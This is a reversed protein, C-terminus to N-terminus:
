DDLDKSRIVMDPSDLVKIQVNDTFVMVDGESIIECFKGNYVFLNKDGGTVCIAANIAKSFNELGPGVHKMNCMIDGLSVDVALVSVVKLEPVLVILFTTPILPNYHGVVREYRHVVQAAADRIMAEKADSSYSLYQFYPSEPIDITGGDFRCIEFTMMANSYLVGPENEKMFLTPCARMAYEINTSSIRHTCLVVPRGFFESGSTFFPVTVFLDTNNLHNFMYSFTHCGLWLEGFLYTVGDYLNKRGNIFRDQLSGSYKELIIPDFVFDTTDVQQIEEKLQYTVNEDAYALSFLYNARLLRILNHGWIYGWPSPYCDLVAAPHKEKSLHDSFNLRFVENIADRLVVNVAFQDFPFIVDEKSIGSSREAM